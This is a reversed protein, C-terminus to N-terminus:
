INVLDKLKKDLGINELFILPDDRILGFLEKFALNSLKLTNISLVKALKELKIYTDESVPVHYNKEM